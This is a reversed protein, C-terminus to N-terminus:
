KQSIPLWAARVAARLSASVWQAGDVFWQAAAKDDIVGARILQRTLLLSDDKLM